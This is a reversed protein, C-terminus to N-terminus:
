ALSHGNIAVLIKFWDEIDLNIQSALVCTKVRTLNQTGLIPMVNSPHKLLWALAIQEFSANYKHAIENITKIIENEHSTNPQFVKGGALPSWAMPRIDFLHMQELTGDYLPKNHLISFEIQNTVLNIRENLYNFQDTSFNSVGLRKVKGEIRLKNFTNAIEDVNMLPSPRHILLVDLFESGFNQLSQNVSAIISKASYDYHKITVNPTVPSKIKIGCKTALQIQNRLAKNKKLVRGFLEENQYQGYIDAHDMVTIGNDIATNILTDLETESLQSELLRRFGIAFVGNLM